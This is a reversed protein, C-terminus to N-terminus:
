NVGPYDAIMEELKAIREMMKKYIREANGLTLLRYRVVNHYEKDEWLAPYDIPKSVVGFQFSHFNSMYFPRIVNTNLDNETQELLRATEYSDEFIVKLQRRMAEDHILELGAAKLEDYAPREYRVFEVRWVAGFLTDLEPTYAPREEQLLSDLRSVSATREELIKSRYEYRPKFVNLDGQIELLSKKVFANAKRKDNWNALYLAILVGIVILLVEGVAYLWYRRIKGSDLLRKRIRRFFKLM